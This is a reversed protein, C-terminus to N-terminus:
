VDMDESIGRLDQIKNSFMSLYLLKIIKLNENIWCLISKNWMYKKFSQTVIKISSVYVNKWWVFNLGCGLCFPLKFESIFPLFQRYIPTFCILLFVSSLVTLISVGGVGLINRENWSKLNWWVVTGNKSQPSKCKKRCYSHQQRVTDLSCLFERPEM